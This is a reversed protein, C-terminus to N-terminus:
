RGMGVKGCEGSARRSVNLSQIVVEHAPLLLVRVPSSAIVAGM